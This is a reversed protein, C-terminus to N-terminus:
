GAKADAVNQAEKKEKEDGIVEGRYVWVKIGIVGYTTIAEHFGYDIDARLTSLPIKGEMAMERRAMEAGGLRGSIMIKVGQAGRDRANRITMKLVRRFAARKKLQDGVNEAILQADLEPVAVEQINLSVDKGATIVELEKKLSEIRAGKRGIVVGPRAVMLTLGVKNEDREIDISSVGASYFENKIHRRIKRDELLYRGFDKKNAYWRSSWNRTIGIRIGTPRVKQGM